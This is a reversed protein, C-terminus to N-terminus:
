SRNPRRRPQPRIERHLTEQLRRGEEQGRLRRHSRRSSAREEPSQNRPPIQQPAQSITRRHQPRPHTPIPRARSPSQSPPQPDQAPTPPHRIRAMQPPPNAVLFHSTIHPNRVQGHPKPQAQAPCGSRHRLKTVAERPSPEVICTNADIKVDSTM